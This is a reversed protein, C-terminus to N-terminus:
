VDWDDPSMSPEDSPLIYEWILHGTDINKVTVTLSWEKSSIGNLIQLLGCVQSMIMMDWSANAASENDAHYELTEYHSGVFVQFGYQDSTELSAQVIGRAYNKWVRLHDESLVIVLENQDNVEILIYNREHWDVNKLADAASEPSTSFISNCVPDSCVFTYNGNEDPLLPPFGTDEEAKSKPEDTPEERATSLVKLDDWFAMAAIGALMILGVVTLLITKRKM